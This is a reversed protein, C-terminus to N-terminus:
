VIRSRFFYLISDINRKHKREDYEVARLRCRTELIGEIERQTKGSNVLDTGQVILCSWYDMLDYLVEQGCTVGHGPIYTDVDMKVVNKLVKVLELPNGDRLITPYVGSFVLDGTFVAHYDPFVAVSSCDTHGGVKEFVVKVGEFDYEKRESFTMTPPTIELDKWEVKLMPDEEMASAIEGRSWFSAPGEEMRRKCAESSLIPCEFSQNGFTHDSHYHTNFLLKVECGLSTLLYRNIAASVGPLCGSDVVLASNNKICLGINCGGTNRVVYFVDKLNEVEFNDWKVALEM